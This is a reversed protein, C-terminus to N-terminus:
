QTGENGAVLGVTVLDVWDQLATVYRERGQEPYRAASSAVFDAVQAEVSVDATLVSTAHIAAFARLCRSLTFPETM